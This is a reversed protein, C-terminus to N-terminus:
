DVVESIAIWFKEQLGAIESYQTLDHLCRVIWWGSDEDFADDSLCENYIVKAVNEAIYSLILENSPREWSRSASELSLTLVRIRNFSEKACSWDGDRLESLDVFLSNSSGISEM